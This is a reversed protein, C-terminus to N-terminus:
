PHYPLDFRNEIFGAACCPQPLFGLSQHPTSFACIGDPSSCFSTWCAPYIYAIQGVQCEQPNRSAIQYPGYLPGYIHYFASAKILLLSRASEMPALVFVQEVLRIYTHLRVWRVNKLIEAQLKTPVMYPVM